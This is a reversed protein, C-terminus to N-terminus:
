IYRVLAERVSGVLRQGFASKDGVGKRGKTYFIRVVGNALLCIFDQQRDFISGKNGQTVWPLEIFADDKHMSTSLPAWGTRPRSPFQM